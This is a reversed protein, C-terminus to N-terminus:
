RAYYTGQRNRIKRDSWGSLTGHLVVKHLEGSHLDQLKEAVVQTTGRWMGNEASQGVGTTEGRSNTGNETGLSSRITGSMKM